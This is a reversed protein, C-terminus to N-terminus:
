FCISLINCYVALSYLLLYAALRKLVGVDLGCKM